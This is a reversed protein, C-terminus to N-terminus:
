FRLIIKIYIHKRGHEGEAPVTSWPSGGVMEEPQEEEIM